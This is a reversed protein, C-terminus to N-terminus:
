HTILSHKEMCKSCYLEWEKILYIYTELEYDWYYVLYTSGCKICKRYLFDIDQNNFNSFSYM